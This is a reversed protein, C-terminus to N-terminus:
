RMRAAKRAGRSRQKAWLEAGAECPQGRGIWGTRWAEGFTQLLMAPPCCVSSRTAATAAAIRKLLTTRGASPGADSRARAPCAEAVALPSTVTNCGSKPDWNARHTQIAQCTLTRPTTNTYPIPPVVTKMHMMRNFQIARQTELDFPQDAIYFDLCFPPPHLTQVWTLPIQQAAHSSCPLPPRAATASQHVRRVGFARQVHLSRMGSIGAHVEASYLLCTASRVHALAGYAPCARHVPMSQLVLPPPPAPLACCVPSSAVPM